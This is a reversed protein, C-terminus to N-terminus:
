RRRLYRRLLADADPGHKGAQEEAETASPRGDPAVVEAAPRRPGDPVAAGVERPQDRVVAAVQV